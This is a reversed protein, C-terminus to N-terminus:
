AKGKTSGAAKGTRPHTIEDGRRPTGTAHLSEGVAREAERLRIEGSLLQPLLADRLAGLSQSERINAAVQALWPSMIRDAAALCAPPAIVIEFRLLDGPRVRQHSNSTGTVLTAFDETFVDSTVVGFLIARTAGTSRRPVCVMFETSTIARRGSHLDPLWVRPTKPNLKSLLLCDPQVVFKNSKISAGLEVAPRRGDDFAPISYHDFAETPHEGPNVQAKSLDCLEGV